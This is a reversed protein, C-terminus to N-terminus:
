VHRAPVLDLALRLRKANERHLRKSLALGAEAEQKPLVALAAAIDAGGQAAVHPVKEHQCLAESFSGRRVITPLGLQIARGLIGSAQDYSHDYLCWVATAVAYAAEIEQDSLHRDIVLAGMSELEAKTSASDPDFRGAVMVAWGATGGQRMSAALMQIGKARNQMGLAVLLPRGSAHNRSATLLASADPNGAQRGSRMDAILRRQTESLDWLQFDHIWGDAISEIQPALPTPVISLTRVAPVRLLLRLIHRKVKLRLSTGNVAPGPRFLLGVTRRGLLTRFLSALVYLGFHDEVMLFLVPGRHRFLELESVRRGGLLGIAFALYAARHGNLTRSYHGVPAANGSIASPYETDRM